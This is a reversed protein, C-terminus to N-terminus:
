KKSCSLNLNLYMFIDFNEDYQFLLISYLALQLWWNVLKKAKIIDEEHLIIM